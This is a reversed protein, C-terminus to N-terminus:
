AGAIAQVYEAYRQGMPLEFNASLRRRLVTKEEGTKPNLGVKQLNEWVLGVGRKQWSPLQDFNIGRQFLLENKASVGASSKPSIPM